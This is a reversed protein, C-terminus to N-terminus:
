KVARLRQVTAAAADEADTNAARATLQAKVITDAQKASITPFMAPILAKAAEPAITGEKVQSTLSLLAHAQKGDLAKESESEVEQGDWGPWEELGLSCVRNIQAWPVGGDALVKATMVRDHYLAWLADVGSLDFEIRLETPDGFEPVLQQNLVSRLHSLFPIITHTWFSLEAQEFNSYTARDLIGVLVPPVRFAACINERTLKRGAVFDLDKASKSMDHYTIKGQPVVLLGRAKTAGQFESEFDAKFNEFWQKGAAQQVGAIEVIGGLVGRNDMSYKQFDACAVSTQIDRWAPEFAALGLWPSGPKPMRLVIMDEVAVDDLGTRKAEYSKILGSKKDLKAGFADAPHAWLAVPKSKGEVSLSPDLQANKPARIKPIYSLGGLDCHYSVNMVFSDWSWEPNPSNLLTQLAGNEDEWSDGVKRRAKFPISANTVAKLTTCAYVYVDKMLGNTVANTESYPSWQAWDGFTQLLHVPTFNKQELYPMLAAELQKADGRGLGWKQAVKKLASRARRGERWRKFWGM